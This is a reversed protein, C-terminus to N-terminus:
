RVRNDIGKDGPNFAKKGGTNVGGAVSCQQVTLSDPLGFLVGMQVPVSCM